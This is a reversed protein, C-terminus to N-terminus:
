KRWMKV